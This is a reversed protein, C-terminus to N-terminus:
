FTFIFNSDILFFRSSLHFQNFSYIHLNNGRIFTHNFLLVTLLILHFIKGYIFNYTMPFSSASPFLHYQQSAFTFRYFINLSKLFSFYSLFHTTTIGFFLISNTDLRLIKYLRLCIFLPITELSANIFNLSNSIFTHTSPKVHRRNKKLTKTLTHTHTSTCIHRYTSTHTHLM